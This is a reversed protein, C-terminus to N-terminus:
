EMRPSRRRDQGLRRDSSERREPIYSTYLFQRRDTGVRRGGNDILNTREIHEEM